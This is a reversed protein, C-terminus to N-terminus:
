TTTAPYPGVAGQTSFFSGSLSFTGSVPATFLLDALEGGHGPHMSLGGPQLVYGTGDNFVVGSGNHQIWPLDDPSTSSRAWTDLSDGYVFATSFTTFSSSMQTRYGYSWPGTPNSSASFDAGADFVMGGLASWAGSFVVALAVCLSFGAGARSEQHNRLIPM